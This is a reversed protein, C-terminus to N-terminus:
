ITHHWIAADFDSSQTVKAENEADGYQVEAWKIPSSGDGYYESRLYAIFEARRADGADSDEDENWAGDPAVFFSGVANVPSVTIPSVTDGFIDKARDHARQLSAAYKAVAISSLWYADDDKAPAPGSCIIAHHRMYGM